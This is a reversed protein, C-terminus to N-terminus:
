VGFDGVLVMEEVKFFNVFTESFLQIKQDLKEEFRWFWRRFSIKWHQFFQRLKRFFISNKTWIKNWFKLIVLWFWNEFRSCIWSFISIREVFIWFCSSDPLYDILFKRWFLSFQIPFVSFNISKWHFIKLYIKFFMSKGIYFWNWFITVFLREKQFEFIEHHFHLSMSNGFIKFQSKGDKEMM